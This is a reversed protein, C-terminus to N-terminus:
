RPSSRRFKDPFQQVIGDTLADAMALIHQYVRDYARVDADWDGKLRAVVEDTTTSLHLRMMEALTARPWHPNASALFAAIDDANRQWERAAQQHRAADGAKAYAVVDVAITIHEKLLTTLQDGAPKGYIGAIATGIDEQNKLLRTAAAQADPGGAVAAVVYARTWVVHDTWLTRMDQRLQVAAPLTSQHDAHQAYAPLAVAVVAAAM